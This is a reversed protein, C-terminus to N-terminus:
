SRLCVCDHDLVSDDTILFQLVIELNERVM